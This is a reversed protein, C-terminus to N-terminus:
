HNSQTSLTLLLFCKHVRGGYKGNELESSILHKLEFLLEKRQSMIMYTLSGNKSAYAYRAGVGTCIVEMIRIIIVM